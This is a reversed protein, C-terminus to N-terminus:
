CIIVTQLINCFLKLSCSVVFDYFLCANLDVTVDTSMLLLQCISFKQKNLGDKNRVVM